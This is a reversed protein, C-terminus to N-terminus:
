LQKLLHKPLNSSFIQLLEEFSKLGKKTENTLEYSLHQFYTKYFDNSLLVISQAKKVVKEFMIGLGLEKAERLQSAIIEAEKSGQIWAEKRMVWIGFVMPLGTHKKWLSGLDYIFFDKTSKSFEFLAHDGISLAASYNSSPVASQLNPIQLPIEFECIIKYFEKLIIQLLKNSTASVPSLAIKAGDLEEIPFKSFLLVSDCPGDSAICLNSIPTLKNKNELYTLSSVPAIDIGGKLILENLKSPVDSTIKANIKVKGLEIPLNIPLCNIFNVQGLNFQKKINNHLQCEGGM